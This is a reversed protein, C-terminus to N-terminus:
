RTLSFFITKKAELGDEISDEWARYDSDALGTRALYDCYDEGLGEFYVFYYGEGDGDSFIAADGPQRASDYVWDDIEDKYLHRYYNAILGDEYYYDDTHDKYLISFTEENKVPSENWEKLIAEAETKLDTKAAALADNYEEATEYDSSSVSGAYMTIMHVRATPYDNKIREVFFVVHYTGGASSEALYVDGYQRSPDKVWDSYQSALSNGSYRHFTSDDDAYISSDYDRAADTLDQETKIGAFYAEAAAKAGDAGDEFKSQSIYFSRIAYVDLTDCHEAYNADLDAQSYTFGSKAHERYEDAYMEMYILNYYADGTLGKGFNRALFDDLNTQNADAQAQVSNFAEKLEQLKEESLEFGEAHGAQWASATRRITSMAENVFVEDWTQGTSESFVQSKLSKTMDPLLTEAQSSYNGYVESVYNNYASYYFYDFDAVTFKMDGVTVATAQRRIMKTNAILALVAIIVVLAAGVTILAINRRRKRREAARKLAKKQKSMSMAAENRIGDEPQHRRLLREQYRM